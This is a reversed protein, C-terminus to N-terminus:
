NINTGSKRESVEADVGEMSSLASAMAEAASKQSSTSVVKGM